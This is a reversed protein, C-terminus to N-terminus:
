EQNYWEIFQDSSWSCMEIIKSKGLFIKQEELEIKIHESLNLENVHKDLMSEPSLEILRKKSHTLM